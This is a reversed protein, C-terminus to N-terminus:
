ALLRELMPLLGRLAKGRHSIAHKEDDSLEAMTRGASDGAVLFLPDYGFGRRGRREWGIRGEVTGEAYEARGEPTVLALVCRYRAGRGELPVGELRRLLLDNNAEDAGAGAVGAFRASRVGPAGGLADVEIGSDDALTVRLSWSALERAKKDANDRFTEGDEEVEPAGELEGVSVVSFRTNELM